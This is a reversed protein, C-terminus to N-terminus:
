PWFENLDWGDLPNLRDYFYDELLPLVQFRWIRELTERNMREVMFYSHGVAHHRDLLEDKIRSNLSDFGSYLKEGLENVRGQYHARLAASSPAIEIFSFRRRLALDLSKTSRDATNMTGIIFLNKPLSFAGSYLLDAASDRYELLYMLEGFVRPLNARNM